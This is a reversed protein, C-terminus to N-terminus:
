VRIIDILTTKILKFTNLFMNHPLWELFFCKTLSVVAVLSLVALLNIATTESVLVIIHHVVIKICTCM